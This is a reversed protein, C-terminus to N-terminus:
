RDLAGGEGRALAVPDVDLLVAATCATEDAEPYFVHAYGFSLELSEVRDTHKHLLDGLDTAPIHTTRLTLLM